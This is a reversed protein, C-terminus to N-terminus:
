VCDSISAYKSLSAALSHGPASPLRLPQGEREPRTCTVVVRRQGALFSAGGTCDKFVEGLARHSALRETVPVDTAVEGAAIPDLEVGLTAVRLRESQDVPEGAGRRGLNKGDPSTILVRDVPKSDLPDSAVRSTRQERPQERQSCRSRTVQGFLSM